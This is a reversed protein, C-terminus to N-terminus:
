SKQRLARLHELQAAILADLRARELAPLNAIEGSTALAYDDDWVLVACCRACLVISRAPVADAPLPAGCAPCRCGGPPRECAHDVDRGM